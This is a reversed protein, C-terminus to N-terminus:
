GYFLVHLVFARSDSPFPLGLDQAAFAFENTYNTNNQFDLLPQLLFGLLDPWLYIYAPM